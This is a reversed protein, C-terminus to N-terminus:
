INPYVSSSEFGIKSNNGDGIRASFIYLNAFDKQGYVKAIAQIMEEDKEYRINSLERIPEASRWIANGEGKAKGVNCGRRHVYTATPFRGNIRITSLEGAAVDTLYAPM